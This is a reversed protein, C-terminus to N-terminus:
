ILKRGNVHLSFIQNKEKINQQDGSMKVSKVSKVVIELQNQSCIYIYM